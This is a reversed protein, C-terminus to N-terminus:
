EEKLIDILKKRIKGSMANYLREYGTKWQKKANQKTFLRETLADRSPEPLDAWFWQELLKKLIPREKIDTYTIKEKSKSKRKVFHLEESMRRVRQESIGLAEMRQRQEKLATEFEPSTLIWKGKSDEETLFKEFEKEDSDIKISAFNEFIEKLGTPSAGKEGTEMDRLMFDIAQNLWEQMQAVTAIEKQPLIHAEINRIYNKINLYLRCFPHNKEFSEEASYKTRYKEIIGDFHKKVKDRKEYDQLILEFEEKQNEGRYLKQRVYREMAYTTISEQIAVAAAGYRGQKTYLQSLKVLLHSYKYSGELVDGSKEESKQGEYSFHQRFEEKLRQLMWAAPESLFERLEQINMEIIFRVGAELYHLNNSNMAYDFNEFEQILSDIREEYEPSLKKKEERLCAYLQKVSGMNQFENIANIWDTLESVTTLNVLPTGKERRNKGEGEFKKAEFMGYYVSYSLSRRSILGFYKVLMMIYMPISRFGNSIDFIIRTDKDPNLINELSQKLCEFYSTLEESSSGNPIIAIRVDDFQGAKRIYTEVCEWDIQSLKRTKLLEQIEEKEKHIEASAKLGYWSVIGKWNSSETGVLLLKNPNEKGIVADFAYGTTTIATDNEDLYTTKQYNGMGVSTLLIVDQTGQKEKQYKSPALSPRSKLYEQKGYELFGEFTNDQSSRVAKVLKVDRNKGQLMKVMVGTLAEEGQCLLITETDEENQQKERVIKLIRDCERVMLECIETIQADQSIEPFSIDIVKGYEKAMAKQKEPWEEFAEYSYNIFM